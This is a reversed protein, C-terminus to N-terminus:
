TGSLIFIKRILASPIKEKFIFMNLFVKSLLKMLIVVTLKKRYMPKQGPKLVSGIIFGKRDTNVGM